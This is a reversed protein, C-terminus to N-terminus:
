KAPSEGNTLPQVSVLAHGNTDHPRIGAGSDHLHGVYKQPIRCHVVVRHDHYRRSLVEGHAALYALLRGNDVNTEVDLDLFTRSLADSVAGALQEIGEGRRASIPIANPYRVLLGELRADPPLADTKNLVLVTDKEEIGLEELV